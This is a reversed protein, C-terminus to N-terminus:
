NSVKTIRFMTRYNTTTSQQGQDTHPRVVDGANLNLTVSVALYAATPVAIVAARNSDTILEVATTLQNSNVSVGFTNAIANSGDQYTIAYIGQSNILYSDGAAATSSYTIDSGTNVLTTSMRRIRTNTSGFGNGGVVYVESRPAAVQGSSTATWGAIPITFFFQISRGSGMGVPISTAESFPQWTHNSASNAVLGRARVTTTTDYVINGLYSSTTGDYGSILGLVGLQATTYPMKTADISLGGPITVSFATSTTTGSFTLSGHVEMTDGVRRYFGSSSSVNAVYSTVPTFAIWDSMVLAPVSAPGIVYGRSQLVYGTTTSTAVLVPKNVSPGATPATATLAGASSASLYYTSGAVLGSLGSVFGVSTLYFSNVDVVESVVGVVESTADADAKALAYTSGTYYLVQGVTFGHANQSILKTAAQVTVPESEGVQVSDVKMVTSTAASGAIKLTTASSLDGCPFALVAPKATTSNSLAVSAILSAGQYVQFKVNAANADATYRLKAECNQGSLKKDFANATWTVVDTASDITFSFDGAGEIPATTNRAVTVNTGTVNGTNQEAGYNKVYNRVTRIGRIFDAQLERAGFSIAFAQNTLFAFCLILSLIKKLM